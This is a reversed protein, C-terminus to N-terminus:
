NSISTQQRTSRNESFKTRFLIPAIEVMINSEDVTLHPWLGELFRALDYGQNTHSCEIAEIETETASGTFSM